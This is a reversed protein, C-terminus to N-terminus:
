NATIINNQAVNVAGRERLVAIAQTHPNHNVVNSILSDKMYGAITIASNSNCIVNSITISSMSEPQNAGYGDGDGLLV